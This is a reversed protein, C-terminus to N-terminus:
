VCLCQCEFIIFSACSPLCNMSVPASFAFCQEICNNRHVNFLLISIRRMNIKKYVFVRVIASVHRHVSDNSTSVCKHHHDLLFTIEDFVIRIKNSFFLDDIRNFALGTPNFLILLSSFFSDTIRNSKM